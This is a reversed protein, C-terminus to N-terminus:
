KKFELMVARSVCMRDLPVDSLILLLRAKEWISNASSLLTNACHHQLWTSWTTWRYAKLDSLITDTQWRRRWVSMQGGKGIMEIKNQHQQGGPICPFSGRWREKYTLIYKSSEALHGDTQNCNIKGFIATNIKVVNILLMVSLFRVLSVLPWLDSDKILTQM